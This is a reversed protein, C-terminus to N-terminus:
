RFRPNFIWIYSKRFIGLKRSYLLISRITRKAWAVMSTDANFNPNHRIGITSSDSRQIVLPPSLIRLKVSAKEAGGTVYDAPVRPPYFNGLLKKAGSKTIAYAHAGLPFEAPLVMEYDLVKQRGYIASEAGVDMSNRHLSWHGLLVLEWDKRGSLLNLMAPMRSDCVADDELILIEDEESELLIQYAGFHSLACGVESPSLSRAM